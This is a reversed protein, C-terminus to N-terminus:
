VRNRRYKFLIREAEKPISGEEFISLVSNYGIRYQTLGFSDEKNKSVIYKILIKIALKLDKPMNSSSYGATYDVLVNQYGSSFKSWKYVSGKNLDVRINDLPRDSISFDVWNANIANLGYVPILETSKYNAYIPSLLQATWGNGKANIANAVAQITTYTAFLVTIDAVGDKVIRIGTTTVSVSASSYQNTNCVKMASIYSESVRDVATVPYNNLNIISKGGSYREFKYSSSEFIRRCYESVFSEVDEHITSITDYESDDLDGFFDRVESPQVIM